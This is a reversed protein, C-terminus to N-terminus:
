APKNNDLYSIFYQYKNNENIINALVAFKTLVSLDSNTEYCLCTFLIQMKKCDLLLASNNCTRLCYNLENQM